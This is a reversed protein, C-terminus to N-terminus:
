THMLISLPMDTDTLTATWSMCMAATLARVQRPSHSDEAIRRRALGQGWGLRRRKPPDQWSVCDSIASLSRGQAAHSGQHVALMSELHMGGCPQQMINASGAPVHHTFLIKSIVEHADSDRPDMSASPRTRSESESSPQPLMAATSETQPLKGAPAAAAAPTSPSSTRAEPSALFGAAAATLKQLSSPQAEPGMIAAASPAQAPQVLPGNPAPQSPQLQPFTLTPPKDPLSQQLSAAQGPQAQAATSAPHGHSIPAPPTHQTLTPQPFPSVLPAGLRPLSPLAVVAAIDGRLPPPSPLMQAPLHEPAHSAAPAAKGAASLPVAPLAPSTPGQMLSSQLPQASAAPPPPLAAASIARPQLLSPSPTAQRAQSPSTFRPSVPSMPSLPVPPGAAAQPKADQAKDAKGDQWRSPKTRVPPPLSPRPLPVAATATIAPKPSLQLPAQRPPTPRPSHKTNPGPSRAPKQSAARGNHPKGAAAAPDPPGPRAQGPLKDWGSFSRPGRPPPEPLLEGQLQLAAEDRGQSPAPHVHSAM